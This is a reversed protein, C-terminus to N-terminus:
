SSPLFVTLGAMLAAVRVVKLRAFWDNTENAGIKENHSFDVPLRKNM